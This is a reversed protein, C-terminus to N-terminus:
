KKKNSVTIILPIAQTCAWHKWSGLSCCMCVHEACGQFWPQESEVPFSSFHNLFLLKRGEHSSAYLRRRGRGGAGPQIQMVGAGQM